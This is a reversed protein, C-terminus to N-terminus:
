AQASPEGATFGSRIRRVRVLVEGSPFSADRPTAIPESVLHRCAVASAVDLVLAEDELECALAEVEARAAALPAEGPESARLWSRLLTAFLRRRAMTAERSAHEFVEPIVYADREEALRDVLDWRHWASSVGLSGVVLGGLFLPMAIPQYTQTAALALGLSAAGVALQGREEIRLSRLRDAADDLARAYM